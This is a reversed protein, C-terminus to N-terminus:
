AIAIHFKVYYSHSTHRLLYTFVFHSHNFRGIAEYFAFDISNMRHLLISFIFLLAKSSKSSKPRSINLKNLYSFLEKSHDLGRKNPDVAGFTEAILHYCLMTM